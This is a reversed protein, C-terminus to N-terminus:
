DDAHEGRLYDDHLGAMWGLWAGQTADPRWEVGDAEPAPAWPLLAISEERPIGLRDAM